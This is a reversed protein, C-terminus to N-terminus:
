RRTRRAKLHRRATRERSAAVSTLHGCKTQTRFYHGSNARLPCEWIDRKIDSEPTLLCPKTCRVHRSKVWLPYGATEAMLASSPGFPRGGGVTRLLNSVIHIIRAPRPTRIQRPHRIIKSSRNWYQLGDASETQSPFQFLM